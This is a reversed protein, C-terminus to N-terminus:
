EGEQLINIATDGNIKFENERNYTATIYFTDIEPQEMTPVFESVIVVLKEKIESREEPTLQMTGNTHPPNIFTM